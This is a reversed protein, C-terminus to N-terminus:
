PRAIDRAPHAAQPGAKISRQRDMEKQYAAYLEWYLKEFHKERHASADARALIGASLVATAIFAGLAVWDNPDNIQFGGVPPIYFYVYVLTVALSSVLAMAAGSIRTVVVISLLLVSTATATNVWPTLRLFTIAGAIVALGRIYLIL